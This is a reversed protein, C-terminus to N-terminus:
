YNTILLEKVKKVDKTISKQMSYNTDVKKFKLGKCAKRVRPHDNYSVMVKGKTEKALECVDEPEVKGQGYDIADVYPPDLYTFSDKDAHNKVVTRYDQNLIKTKKLKEKYKACNRKLNHIGKKELGSNAPHPVHFKPNDIEGTYSRKNVGLFACVSRKKNTKAKEFENENTPLNCKQLKKCDGDRLNRYFKILEPNKDNIVNKEVLPKKFFVSGGGIFPEIYTKHEPIKSVITKKLQSKGGPWCLAPPLSLDKEKAEAIKFVLIIEEEIRKEHM